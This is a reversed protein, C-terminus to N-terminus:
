IHLGANELIKITKEVYLYTMESREFSFKNMFNYENEGSRVKELFEKSNLVSIM